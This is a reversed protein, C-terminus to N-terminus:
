RANKKKMPFARLAGSKFGAELAVAAFAFVLVGEGVLLAAQAWTELASADSGHLFVDAAGLGRTLGFAGVVGGKLQDNGFDDRVAYSYTM